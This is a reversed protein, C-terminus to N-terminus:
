NRAKSWSYGRRRAGNRPGAPDAGRVRGWHPSGPPLGRSSRSGPFGTARPVRSRPRRGSRRAAPPGPSHPRRWDIRDRGPGWRCADACRPPPRTGVRSSWRPPPRRHAGGRAPVAARVPPTRIRHAVAGASPRAPSGNPRSAPAASRRPAGRSGRARDPGGRNEIDGRHVVPQRPGRRRLPQFKPQYTEERQQRRSQRRESDIAHDGVCDALRVCSIPTRSASPAAAPGPRAAPPQARYTAPAPRHSAPAPRRNRAERPVQCRQEELGAGM